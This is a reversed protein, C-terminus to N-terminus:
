PMHPHDGGLRASPKRRSGKFPRRSQHRGPSDAPHRHRLLINGGRDPRKGLCRRIGSSQSKVGHFKVARMAIQNILKKPPGGVLAGITVAAGAQRLAGPKGQFQNTGDALAHPWVKRNNEPNGLQLELIVGRFQRDGRLFHFLPQDRQRRRANVEEM